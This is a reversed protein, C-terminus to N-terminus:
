SSDKLIFGKREQQEIAKLIVEATAPLAEIRVGVADFIANAIAPAVSIVPGEGAEKAGFPGKPDISEVIVPTIQPIDVSLPLGYDLFSPNMTQGEERTLNESLAYGMGMAVSGELQGEVAMPNIAQGCDHAVSIEVLKVKGTERDVEVQAAAAGFSYTSSHDGLGTSYDFVNYPETHYGRGIIPRHEHTTNYVGMAEKITIGKDPSGKVYILGNNAVLDEPSAELKEAAAKFLERRADAAAAKVANGDWYTVRSSFTGPDPPTVETDQAVVQIDDHSVGFEEAVIQALASRCGQGVDVAGTLLSIGGDEHVKIVASYGVNGPRNSGSIFSHCAMGKGRGITKSRKNDWGASATAREICDRLGCSTVHFQNPLTENPGVINKLLLEKTDMQLDKALMDLHSNVAFAPQPGGYGRMAGGPLNNTYVLYGDCKINPVRFPSSLFSVSYGLGVPGLISYAGMDSIIRAQFAMLTGDRKAGSKLQIIEPHRVRTSVFVEERALETKVPRGAKRSLLVASFQHSFIGTKGGFGGGQALTIMRVKNLPMNLLKSIGTTVRYPSQCSSWIVVKGSSDWIAVCNHAEMACHTVAQTKFIDERIYDSQAFGENVDGLDQHTEWGINSGRGTVDPAEPRMAEEPDFVAPLLEYEVEILELARSALEEDTAAVAAVEDGIFRVRDMALPLRDSLTLEQRPQAGFSVGPTDRGTIVAKVGRLREARSTDIRVIRAHPYPSSLSKAYLMDPFFLDATYKASGTSKAAADVNPLRKGVCSYDRM